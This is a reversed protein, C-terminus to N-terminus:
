TVPDILDLTTSDETAASKVLFVKQDANRSYLRDELLATLAARASPHASQVLQEAISEKDAFTADRLKGLTAVFTDDNPSQAYVPGAGRSALLLLAFLWQVGPRLLYKKM